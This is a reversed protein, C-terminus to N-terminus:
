SINELNNLYTKLEGMENQLRQNESNNHSIAFSIEVINQKVFSKVM